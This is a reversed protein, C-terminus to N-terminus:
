LGEGETFCCESVGIIHSFNYSTTFPRCKYLVKDLGWVGFHKVSCDTMWGNVCQCHHAVSCSCQTLSVSALSGYLRRWRVRQGGDAPLDPSTDKGLSVHNLRVSLANSSAVWRNFSSSRGGSGCRYSLLVSPFCQILFLVSVVSILFTSLCFSRFKSFFLLLIDHHCPNIFVTRKVTSAWSKRLAM